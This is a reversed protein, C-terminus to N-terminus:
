KLFANAAQLASEMFPGPVMGMGVVGACAVSVAVKQSLSLQIKGAGNVPEEMFISRGLRMYYFVGVVALTAGLLVVGVQGAKYAALFVGLKAWFGAVFPIGALSLLFVLMGAALAPNRTILGKFADLHDTGASDEVISVVAFAGMNTFVYAALYFLLMGLGDPTAIILGLFMTGM